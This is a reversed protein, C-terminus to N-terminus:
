SVAAPQSAEGQSHKWERYERWRASVGRNNSPWDRIFAAAASEAILLRGAIKIAPLKGADIFGYVAQPSCGARRAVAPVSLLTEDSLLPITFTSM